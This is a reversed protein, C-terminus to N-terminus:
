ERTTLVFLGMIGVLAYKVLPYDNMIITVMGIYPLYCVAVADTDRGDVPACLGRDDVANNDGKTLVDVEGSVKEHVKLIRHVIPIERDAVPSESETVVMLGKWIMLASCVIMALNLVQHAM